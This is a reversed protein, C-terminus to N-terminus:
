FGLKVGMCFWLCFQLGTYELKLNKSFLRFLLNQVSHYCANGSNLRWKIEEQIMNQNTVRMGFYKFQAVNESYWKAIRIELNHGKSQHLFMLMYKSKELNIELINMDDSYVQMKCTGNLKLGV